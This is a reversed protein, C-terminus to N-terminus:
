SGYRGGRQYVAGTARRLERWALALLAAASGTIILGAALVFRRM